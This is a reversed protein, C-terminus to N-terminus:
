NLQRLGSKGGRDTRRFAYQKHWHGCLILKYDESWDGTPMAFTKDKIGIRISDIYVITWALGSVIILFNDM